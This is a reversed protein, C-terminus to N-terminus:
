GGSSQMTDAVTPLILPSVGGARKTCGSHSWPSRVRGALADDASRDAAHPLGARRRRRGSHRGGWVDLAARFHERAADVAGSELTLLGRLVRIDAEQRLLDAPGGLPRPRRVPPLRRRGPGSPRLRPVLPGAGRGWRPACPRVCRCRAQGRLRGGSASKREAHGAGRRRGCLRRLGRGGRAQLSHYGSFGLMDEHQPELWAHVECARGGQMMLELQLQLGSKGFIAPHSELLMDLAKRSLGHRAALSARDFVKSPDTKDATNAEYVKEAQEVLSEMTDVDAPLSADIPPRRRKPVASRPRRSPSGCGPASITSHAISSITKTTSSPWCSTRGTSTRGFPSRRNWPPLRRPTVPPPSRPCFPRGAKSADSQGLSRLSGGAAPLRRRRRSQRGVGAPRACPWCCRRPRAPPIRAVFGAPSRRRWNAARARVAPSCPSWTMPARGPRDRDGGTRKGTWNRDPGHGPGAAM